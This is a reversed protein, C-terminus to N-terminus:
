DLPPENARDAARAAENSLVVLAKSWDGDEPLAQSYASLAAAMYRLPGGYKKAQRNFWNRAYPDEVMGRRETAVEAQDRTIPTIGMVGRLNLLVTKLAIAEDESMDTALTVIFGSRQDTM